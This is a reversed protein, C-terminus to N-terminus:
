TAWGERLGKEVYEVINVLAKQPSVISLFPIDVKFTNWFWTRFEAALVSDVGFSRLPRHEEVQDVPM